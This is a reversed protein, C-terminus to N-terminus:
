VNYELAELMVMYTHYRMLDKYKIETKRSIKIIESEIDKGEKCYSVLEKHCEEPVMLRLAMIDAMVDLTGEFNVNPHIRVSAEEISKRAAKMLSGHLGETVSVSVGVSDAYKKANGFDRYQGLGLNRTEEMVWDMLNAVRNCM